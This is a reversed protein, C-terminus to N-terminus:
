AFMCACCVCERSRWTKERHARRKIRERATAGVVREREDRASVVRREREMSQLLVEAFRRDKETLLTHCVGRNVEGKEKSMRGARGARHCHSDYDKANDFNVVVKVNDIDLGRSAVDTAFLM